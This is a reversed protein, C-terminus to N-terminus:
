YPQWEEFPAHFTQNVANVFAPLRWQDGQNGFGPGHCYKKTHTYGGDAFENGDYTSLVGDDSTRIIASAWGGCDRTDFAHKSDSHQTTFARTQFRARWGIQSDWSNNTNRFLESPITCGNTVERVISQLITRFIGSDVSDLLRTGEYPTGVSIINPPASRANDAFAYSYNNLLTAAAMGGHSHAVIGRIYGPNWGISAMVETAYRTASEGKRSRNYNFAKNRITSSFHGISKARDCWGHLFVVKPTFGSRASIGRSEIKSGDSSNLLSPHTGKLMSLPPDGKLSSRSIVSNSKKNQVINEIEITGTSAVVMNDGIDIDKVEINRLTYPPFYESEFTLWGSHFTFPVTWRKSRIHSPEVIGGIWGIVADNGEQDKGWVEARTDLYDPMTGNLLTFRIPLGYREEETPTELIQGQTAVVSQDVTRIRNGSNNSNLYGTRHILNGNIRGRAVIYIADIM